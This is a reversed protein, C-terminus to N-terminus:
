IEPNWNRSRRRCCLFMLGLSVAASGPEPVVNVFAVFTSEFGSATYEIVNELNVDTLYFKGFRHGFLISGDGRIDIDHPDGLGSMFPNVDISNVVNGDRDFEYLMEDWTVAFIRGDQDATVGRLDAVPVTIAELLGLTVPDYVHIQNATAGYVANDLGVTVDRFGIGSAFLTFTGVSQSFRLIGASPDGATNMDTLFISDGLTGIGGYSVNNVTSFGPTTYHSWSTTQFDYISLYPDFTGNYVAINGNNLVVLDRAYETAPYSGTAYQIDISDLHNGELDFSRIQNAATVLYAANESLGQGCAISVGAICIFVSHFLCNFSRM